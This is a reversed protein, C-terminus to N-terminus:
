DKKSIKKFVFYNWTERVAFINAQRSSKNLDLGEKLLEAKKYNYLFNYIKIREM